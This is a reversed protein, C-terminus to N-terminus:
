VSGDIAGLVRETFSTLFSGSLVVNGGSEVLISKGGPGGEVLLEEDQIYIDGGKAGWGGGSSAAYNEYTSVDSVEVLGPSDGGSGGPLRYRSGAGGAGGGGGAELTNGYGTDAVVMGGGVGPFQRGGGGGIYGDIHGGDVGKSGIVGGFGYDVDQFTRARGGDGGGAGGGGAAYNGNEYYPAAASGGGGGAGIYANSGGMITCSVSGIHIADGGSGGSVRNSNKGSIAGKGGKGAIFGNIILSLPSSIQKADLAPKTIDDSWIWVGDKITVELPAEGDWGASIAYQYLDLEKQNQTISIEYFTLDEDLLEETNALIEIM